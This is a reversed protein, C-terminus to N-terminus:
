WKVGFLRLFWILGWIVGPLSAILISFATGVIFLIPGTRPKPGWILRLLLESVWGGIYLFNIIFAAAILGLPEEFDEGPQMGGCATCFLYGLVLSVVGVAGVILNYPIRRAEWWLVVDVPGMPEDPRSVLWEWVEEIM